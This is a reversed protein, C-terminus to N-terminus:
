VYLTHASEGKVRGTLPWFDVYDKIREDILRINNPSDLGEIHIVVGPVMGM